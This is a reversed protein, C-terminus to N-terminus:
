GRQLQDTRISCCEANHVSECVGACDLFVYQVYQVYKIKRLRRPPEL